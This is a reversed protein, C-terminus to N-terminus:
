SCTARGNVAVGDPWSLGTKTGAITALPAADGALPLRYLTASGSGGPNGTNAVFIYTTSGGGIPAAAGAVDTSATMCVAGALFTMLVRIFWGAFRGDAVPCIAM